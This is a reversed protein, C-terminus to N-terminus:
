MFIFMLFQFFFSLFRSPVTEATDLAKPLPRIVPLHDPELSDEMHPSVEQAGVPIWRGDILWQLSIWSSHFFNLYFKFLTGRQLLWLEWQKSTHKKTKTKLWFSLLFSLTEKAEYNSSVAWWTPSDFCSFSGVPLIEVKSSCHSSHQCKASKEKKGLGYLSIICNPQTKGCFTFYELIKTM